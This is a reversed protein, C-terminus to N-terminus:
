ADVRFLAEFGEQVFHVDNTLARQIGERRMVQMSVCDVLSFRKDPRARYLELGSLFSRRSQPVVWVQKASLISDVTRGARARVGSGMSSFFALFETLVEDTTVIRASRLSRSFELAQSHASDRASSLAIWYFTDAFFVNM